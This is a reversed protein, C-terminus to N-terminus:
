ICDVFMGFVLGLDPCLVTYFAICFLRCLKLISSCLGALKHAIQLVEEETEQLWAETIFKLQSEPQSQKESLKELDRTYHRLKVRRDTWAWFLSDLSDRLIWPEQGHRRWTPLPELVQNKLYTMRLYGVRRDSERPAVSRITLSSFVEYLGCRCELSVVSPSVWPCMTWNSPLIGLTPEGKHVFVVMSPTVSKM